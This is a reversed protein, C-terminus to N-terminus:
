KKQLTEKPHSPCPPSPPIPNEKNTSKTIKKSQTLQPKKPKKRKQGQVNGSITDKRLHEASARVSYHQQQKLGM